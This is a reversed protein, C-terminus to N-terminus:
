ALYKKGWIGGSMASTGTDRVMPCPLSTSPSLQGVLVHVPVLGRHEHLEPENLRV